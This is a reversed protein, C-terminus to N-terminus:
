SFTRVPILMSVCLGGIDAQTLSLRGGMLDLIDHVISMGLGSGPVTEDLRKGRELIQMIKDDAVGPGNDQISLNVFSKGNEHIITGDIQILDKTWKAANDLINGLLEDVDQREAQVSIGKPVNNIIQFQKKKHMKPIVRMLADMAPDLETTVGLVRSRGMVRARALYHDVHMQISQSQREVIAKFKSDELHDSENVLISLPTKLAHALNGVQTRARDVLTENYDLVGNVEEVLPLVEAPYEHGLRRFNGSRVAALEKRIRRLPKLGIGVQLMMAALLGLGLGAFSWFLIREFRAVQQRIEDINGAVIFQYQKDSEPFSILQTKVKLSQSDPGSTIFSDGDNGEQMAERSFEFDWLSRSRVSEIGTASIQWYWGSYPEEFLQDALPRDIEIVGKENPVSFGVLSAITQDLRQDFNEEVFDEFINSLVFGGATLALLVWLGALMFLRGALAKTDFFVPRKRTEQSM